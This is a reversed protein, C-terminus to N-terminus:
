AKLLKEVKEWTEDSITDLDNRRITIGSSQKEAESLRIVLAVPLEDWLGAQVIKDILTRRYFWPVNIPFEFQYHRM